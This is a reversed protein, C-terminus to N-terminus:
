RALSRHARRRHCSGARPAGLLTGSAHSAIGIGWGLLPWIPWFYGGGSAAWIGILLLNVLVFSTLHSALERRERRNRDQREPRSVRAPLDRVLEALEDRTRSAYVRELRDSLEDVTLRGEGAHERLLEAYREREADSARLGATSPVSDASM